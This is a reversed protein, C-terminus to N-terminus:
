SFFLLHHRPLNSCWHIVLIDLLLLWQIDSFPADRSISCHIMENLIKQSLKLFHVNSKEALLSTTSVLYKKLGRRERSLLPFQNLKNCHLSMNKLPRLTVLVYKGHISYLFYGFSMSLFHYGTMHHYSFRFSLANQM